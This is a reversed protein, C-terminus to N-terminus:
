YVFISVNWFFFFAYFVHVCLELSFFICNAVSTCVENMNLFISIGTCLSVM